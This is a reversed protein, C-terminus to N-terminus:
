WIKVDYTTHTEYSICTEFALVEGVQKYFTTVNDLNVHIMRRLGSERDLGSRFIKSVNTFQKNLSSGKLLTNSVFCSLLRLFPVRLVLPMPYLCRFDVILPILNIPLPRPATHFETGVKHIPQMKIQM